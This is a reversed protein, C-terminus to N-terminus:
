RADDYTQNIQHSISESDVDVLLLLCRETRTMYRSDYEGFIAFPGNSELCDLCAFRTRRKGGRRLLVRPTHM